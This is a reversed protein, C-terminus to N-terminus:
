PHPREEMPRVEIQVNQAFHIANEFYPFDRAQGTGVGLDLRARIQHACVLGEDVADERGALGESTKPWSSRV